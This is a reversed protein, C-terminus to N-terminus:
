SRLDIDHRKQLIQSSALLFSIQLRFSNLAVTKTKYIVDIFKQSYFCSSLYSPVFNKQQTCPQPLPFTHWCFSRNQETIETLGFCTANLNPTATLNQCKLILIFKRIGWHQCWFLIILSRSCTLIVCHRM